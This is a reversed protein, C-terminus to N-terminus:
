VTTSLSSTVVPDPRGTVASDPGSPSSSRRQTEQPAPTPARNMWRADDRRSFFSAGYLLLGAGLTVVVAKVRADMSCHPTRMSFWVRCLVPITFPGYRLM